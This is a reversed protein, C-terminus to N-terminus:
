KKIILRNEVPSFEKPGAQSGISGFPMQAVFEWTSPIDFLARIEEDCVGNYHQLSAGLDVESFAQWVAYQHMANSHHAWEPFKAAYSTFQEQLGETVKTDIYYLVTGYAAKFSNLKQETASFDRDPGMKEKLAHMLTDWFKKHENNLLLVMRTSQSNFASPTHKIVDTLINEIESDSVTSKPELHYISRRKSLDQTAKQKNFLGM